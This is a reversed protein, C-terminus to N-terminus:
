RCPLRGPVLAGDVADQPIFLVAAVQEQLLVVHDIHQAMLQCFVLALKRLIEHLIRM